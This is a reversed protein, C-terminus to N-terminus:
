ACYGYNAEKIYLLSASAMVETVAMQLKLVAGVEAPLQVMEVLLRLLAAAVVLVVSFVPGALRLVQATTDAVAAAAATFRTAAPLTPQVLTEMVVLAVAVAVGFRVPMALLRTYWLVIIIHQALAAALVVVPLVRVRPLPVRVAVVVRAMAEMVRLVAAQALM